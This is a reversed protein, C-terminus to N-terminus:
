GYEQGYELDVLRAELLSWSGIFKTTCNEEGITFKEQPMTGRMGPIKLLLHPLRIM